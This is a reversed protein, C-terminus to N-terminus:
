GGPERGLADLLTEHIGGFGGNSMVLVVEGGQAGHAAAFQLHHPPPRDDWLLCGETAYPGM